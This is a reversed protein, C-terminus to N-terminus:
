PSPILLKQGDKLPGDSQINNAKMLEEKSLGFTMAITGLDDGTVVTYVFASEPLPESVTADEVIEDSIEAAPKAPAETTAPVAKPKDSDTKEAPAPKNSKKAPAAIKPSGSTGPIILKQGIIIKDGKLKNADRIVQTKTGFKVAIKSLSDGAVVNYILGDAPLTAKEVSKKTSKAPAKTSPSTSSNRSVTAYSPLVLKQGVRIKNPNQIHNVDQLDRMSVGHRKAIVSLSDGKKIVYTKLSSQSVSTAAHEVPRPPKLAPRSRKQSSGAVDLKPPMVPAPAPEVITAAAPKTTGCGQIGFFSTIAVIHLGAVVAVVIPTKIACSREQPVAASEERETSM